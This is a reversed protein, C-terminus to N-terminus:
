TRHSCHSSIPLRGGEVTLRGDMYLQGLMFESRLSLLFPATSDLFRVTLHPEGNGFSRRTGRATVITLTGRHMLPSLLLGLM